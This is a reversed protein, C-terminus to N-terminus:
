QEDKKVKIYKNEEISFVVRNLMLDDIFDDKSFYITVVNEDSQTFAEHDDGIGDYIAGRCVESAQVRLYDAGYGNREKMVGFYKGMIFSAFIFFIVLSILVVEM